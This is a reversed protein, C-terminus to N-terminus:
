KEEKTFLLNISRALESSNNAKIQMFPEHLFKAFANQISLELNQEYEKPIFKKKISRKTEAKAAKLASQKIKAILKAHTNPEKPTFFEDTMQEVIEQAKKAEQNRLAINSKVIEQLDDISFIELNQLNIEEIDRPLAIDFWYRKHASPKIMQKTIVANQAGTACFVLCSSDLLEQLTSLPKVAIKPDITRAIQKTKELDRSIITINANLSSLHKAVLTAMQGAGYILASVGSLDGLIKKAKKVASSAISVSNKGIQTANRISAACKFSHEILGSLEDGCIKNQSSLKFADKLQGAIQAEGVVLSELSSAVSLVHKVANKDTFIQSKEQLTKTSLNSYKSFLEYFYDSKLELNTTILETRNCTSLLIAEKIAKNNKLEQLFKLAKEEQFALKERTAIDCFKHSYSIVNYHM